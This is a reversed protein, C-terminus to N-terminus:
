EFKWCFANISTLLIPDDILRKLFTLRPMLFTLAQALDRSAGSEPLPQIFIPCGSYCTSLLSSAFSQCNNDDLTYRKLYKKPTIDGKWSKMKIYGGIFTGCLTVPTTCMFMYTMRYNGSDLMINDQLEKWKERLMIKCSVQENKEVKLYLGNQLLYVAFYHKPGTTMGSIPDYLGQIGGPLIPLIKVLEQIPVSFIQMSIVYYNLYQVCEGADSKVSTIQFCFCFCLIFYVFFSNSLTNSM